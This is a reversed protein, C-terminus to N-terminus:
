KKFIKQGFSLLYIVVAYEVIIGLTGALSVVGNQVLLNYNVSGLVVSMVGVLAGAFLWYYKKM